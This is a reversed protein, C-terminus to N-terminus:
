SPNEVFGFVVEDVLDNVGHVGHFDVTAYFIHRLIFYAGGLIVVGVLWAM